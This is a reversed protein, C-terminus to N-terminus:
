LIKIGNTCKNEIIYSSEAYLFTDINYLKLGACLEVHTDVYIQPNISELIIKTKSDNCSYFIKKCKIDNQILLANIDINSYENLCHNSIIILEYGNDIKNKLFNIVKEIPKFTKNLNRNYSIEFICNELTSCIIKAM